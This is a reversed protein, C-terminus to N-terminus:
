WSVFQHAYVRFRFVYCPKKYFLGPSTNFGWWCLIDWTAMTKKDCFEGVGPISHGELKALLAWFTTYRVCNAFAFSSLSSSVLLALLRNIHCDCIPFTIWTLNRPGGHPSMSLEFTANKSDLTTNCGPQLLASIFLWTMNPLNQKFDLCPRGKGNMELKGPLYFEV